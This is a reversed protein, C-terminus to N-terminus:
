APLPRSPERRRAPFAADIIVIVNLMGALFASLTGLENMKTVSKSNPPTGTPTARGTAPDRGEWPHATRLVLRGFDDYAQVKLQHQHYWDVGFVIPGAAAQGFFWMRDEKSDVVDIGGILLGGFLLSLIGICAYIGRSRHGLYFHGAGPLVFGLVAAVPNFSENHQDHM